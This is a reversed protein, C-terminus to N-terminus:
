STRPKRPDTCSNRGEPRVSKLIEHTVLNPEEGHQENRREVDPEVGLRRSIQRGGPPGGDLIIVSCRCLSEKVPRQVCAGVSCGQVQPRSRRRVQEALGCVGDAAQLPGQSEIWERYHRDYEDAGAAPLVIHPM